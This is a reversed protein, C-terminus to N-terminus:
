LFLIFEDDFNVVSCVRSDIRISSVEGEVSADVAIDFKDDAVLSVKVKM